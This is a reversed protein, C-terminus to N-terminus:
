PKGGFMVRIRASREEDEQNKQAKKLQVKQYVGIFFIGIRDLAFATMVSLTILLVMMEPNRDKLLGINLVNGIAFLFWVFSRFAVKPSFNAYFVLFIEAIVLLGIFIGM